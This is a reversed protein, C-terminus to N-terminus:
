KGIIRYTTKVKTHGLDDEYSMKKDNLLKVFDQKTLRDEGFEVRNMFNIGALTSKAWVWYDKDEIIRETIIQIKM